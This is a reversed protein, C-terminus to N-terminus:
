AVANFRLEEYIEKCGTGVIFFPKNWSIANNYLTKLAEIGNSDIETVKSIDITLDSLSNLTIVFHTKFHSATSANIKGVVTYTKEDRTIKLAM